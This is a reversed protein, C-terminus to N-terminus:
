GGVAVVQGNTEALATGPTEAGESRKEEVAEELCRLLEAVREAGLKRLLVPAMLGPERPVTITKSEEGRTRAPPTRTKRLEGLVKRQEDPGSKDLTTYAPRKRGAPGAGPVTARM